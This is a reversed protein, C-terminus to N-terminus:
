VKISLVRKSTYPRELFLVTRAKNLGFVSLVKSPKRQTMVSRAITGYPPWFLMWLRDKNVEIILQIGFVLKTSLDERTSSCWRRSLTSIIVFTLFVTWFIKQQMKESEM